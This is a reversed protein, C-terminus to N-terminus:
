QFHVSLVVRYLRAIEKEALDYANRFIAQLFQIMNVNSIFNVPVSIATCGLFGVYFPVRAFQM